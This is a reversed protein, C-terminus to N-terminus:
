APDKTKRDLTAEAKALESEARLWNWGFLGQVAIMALVLSRLHTLSSLQGFYQAFQQLAESM